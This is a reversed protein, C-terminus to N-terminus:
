LVADKSEYLSLSNEYFTLLNNIPFGAMMFNVLM